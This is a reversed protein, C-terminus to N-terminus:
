EVEVQLRRGNQCRRDRTPLLEAGARGSMRSAAKTVQLDRYKGSRTVVQPLVDISGAILSGRAVETSCQPSGTVKM